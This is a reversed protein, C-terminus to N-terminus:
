CPIEEMMRDIGCDEKANRWIFSNRTLHVAKDYIEYAKENEGLNYYARAVLGLLEGDDPFDSLSKEGNSIVQRYDEDSDSKSLELYLKARHTDILSKCYDDAENLTNELMSLDKSDFISVSLDKCYECVKKLHKLDDDLEHNYEVIKLIKYADFYLGQRIKNEIAIKLLDRDIDIFLNFQRCNKDLQLSYYDEFISNLIYYEGNDLLGRLDYNNQAIRLSLEQLVIVGTMKLKELEVKITPVRINLNIQKIKEYTKIMEKQNIFNLYIDTYNEFSNDLDQILPNHAIQNDREPVYIWDDGFEVRYFHELGNPIPFTEGEFNIFRKKSFWETKYFLYAEGWRLYFTDAKELPYTYYKDYLDSIVPSFGKQDIEEYYSLVLDKHESFEDLSLFKSTLFNPTILQLFAKMHKLYEERGDDPNPIPDLIFFEVQLGCSEAAISQAAHIVATSTDIYRAIPNRYYPSNEFCVLKRNEPLVDPNETILDYLKYWNDRTIFLDIDDDWPLFSGNRLAGLAAGGILYYEIGHEECLDNVELLLGFLEKQIDNM